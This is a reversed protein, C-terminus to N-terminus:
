ELSFGAELALWRQAGRAWPWPAGCSLCIRVDCQRCLFPSKVFLFVSQLCHLGIRVVSSAFQFGKERQCALRVEGSPRGVQMM